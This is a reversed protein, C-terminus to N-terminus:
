SLAILEGSFYCKFIVMIIIIIIEVLRLLLLIFNLSFAFKHCSIHQAPLKGNDKSGGIAWRPTVLGIHVSEM